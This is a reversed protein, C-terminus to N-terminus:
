KHTVTFYLNGEALDISKAKSFQKLDVQGFLAIRSIFSLAETGLREEREDSSSRVLFKFRRVSETLFRCSRWNGVKM